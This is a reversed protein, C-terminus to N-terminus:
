RNELQHMGDNFRCYSCIGTLPKEDELKDLHKNIADIELLSLCKQRGDLEYRVYELEARVRDLEIKM